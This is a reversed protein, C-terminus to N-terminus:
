LILPNPLLRSRFRYRWRLLPPPPRLPHLPIKRALELACVLSHSPLLFPSRLRPHTPFFISNKQFSRVVLLPSNNYSNDNIRERVEGTVKDMCKELVESSSAYGRAWNNAAGGAGIVCSNSKSYRFNCDRNTSSTLCREVVKPETDILIARAIPTSCSACNQTTRFFQSPPPPPFPPPLTSPTLSSPSPISPSSLSSFIASGLQNGCQGVQITLTPM